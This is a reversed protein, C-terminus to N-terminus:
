NQESYCHTMPFNTHMSNHSKKKLTKNQLIKSGPHQNRTRSLEKVHIKIGKMPNTAIRMSLQYIM